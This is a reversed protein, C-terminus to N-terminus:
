AKKNWPRRPKIRIGPVETKLKRSPDPKSSVPLEPRWKVEMGPADEPRRAFGNKGYFGSKGKACFLQVDRIGETRCREMLRRLIESGIGRGRRDPAVIMDLILAHVVGDCIVRGFGVLRGGEHASVVAWSADAARALEDPKLRYSANWGTTEFLEFFADPDPRNMSYVVSPDESIGKKDTMPDGEIVIEQM